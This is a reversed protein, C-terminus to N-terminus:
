SYEKRRQNIGWTAAAAGLLGALLTLIALVLTLENSRLEDAVEAGAEAIIASAAADYDDFAATSSDARM